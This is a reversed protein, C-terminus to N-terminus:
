SRGSTMRCCNRTDGILAVVDALASKGSGKNGIIAVLDHNLPIEVDFWTDPLVPGGNKKITIASAYKTRNRKVLLQKPPRDGVFVRQDFETVSQLLGQFTPDAKIWTFCQGIRDKNESNSFAHADSCDLLKDLVNAEKLKTRFDNSM